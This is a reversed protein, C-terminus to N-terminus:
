ELWAPLCPVFFRTGSADDLPAATSLTSEEEHIRRLREVYWLRKTQYTEQVRSNVKTRAAEWADLSRQYDVLAARYEPTDVDVFTPEDGAGAARATAQAQSGFTNSLAENGAAMAAAAGRAQQASFFGETDGRAMARDSARDLSRQVDEQTRGGIRVRPANPRSPMPPLIGLAVAPEQWGQLEEPMAESVRALPQMDMGIGGAPFLERSLNELARGDVSSGDSGRLPFPKTMNWGIVFAAPAQVLWIGTSDFAVVGCDRLQSTVLWRLGDHGFSKVALDLRKQYVLLDSLPETSGQLVNAVAQFLNPGSAALKSASRDAVDKPVRAYLAERLAQQGLVKKQAKTTVTVIDQELGQNFADIRPKNGSALLSLYDGPGQNTLLRSLYEQDRLHELFWTEGLFSLGLFPASYRTGDSLFVRANAPTTMSVGDSQKMIPPPLVLVARVSAAADRQEAAERTAALAFVVRPRRTRNADLPLMPIGLRLRSELLPPLTDPNYPPLPNRCEARQDTAVAADLQTWYASLAKHMAPSISLADMDSALPSKDPSLLYGRVATPVAVEKGDTDTIRLSPPLVHLREPLGPPQFADLSPKAAHANSFFCFVNMPSQPFAEQAHGCMGWPVLAVTAFFSVLTKSHRNLLTPASATRQTTM